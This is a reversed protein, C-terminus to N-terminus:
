VKNRSSAMHSTEVMESYQNEYFIIEAQADSIVTELFQRTIKFYVQALKALKKATGSGYKKDLAVGYQYQMGNGFINCGACQLNCNEDDFRTSSYRRSMFHGCHASKLNFPKNCTICVGVWEWNGDATNM